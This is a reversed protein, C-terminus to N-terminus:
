KKKAKKELQKQYSLRKSTTDTSEKKKKDMKQQRSLKKNM